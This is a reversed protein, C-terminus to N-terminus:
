CAQLCRFAFMSLLDSACQPRHMSVMWTLKQCAWSAFSPQLVWLGYIEDNVNTTSVGRRIRGAAGSHKGSPATLTQM